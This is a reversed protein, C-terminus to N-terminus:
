NKGRPSDKARYPGNCIFCGVPRTTQQVFNTTTEVPKTEAAGKKTGKWGAKKNFLPKGEAKGKKSAETKSKGTTNIASGMKYDVLCDAAVMATPLDHVGQRRLETQAWGQLGSIFNFLKDEDSMNKIDLMISSFEKVYERVSGTHKLRKLSERALWASNTPLFQEKLERKLTEWTDIQPRGSEADDGMQTRWWLKADGSLYMSTISVMESDPVHAAKFFQEMDWLFNELEKANRAGGFGKPEPVRVKQPHGSVTSPSQAVAKKLISIEAGMSQVADQYEAMLAHLDSKLADIREGAYKDSAEMLNRQVEFENKMSDAFATVTDEDEPWDGLLTELRAMREKLREGAM